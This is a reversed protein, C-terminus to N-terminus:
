LGKDEDINREGNASMVSEDYANAITGPALM